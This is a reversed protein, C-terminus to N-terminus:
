PQRYARCAVGVPQAHPDDLPLATLAGGWVCGTDIAIVGHSDSYGLASWHGCIVRAGRSRADGFTFWPALPPAVDGPPGKQALDMRGGATCYRLRTLANIVFRHRAAGELAESWTDPQNGYMQAFLAPADHALVAGVEAALRAADIARWQPVLGAHVLLDGRAADFHALPRALLWELLPDRDHAGLVGELTDGQKAQRGSGLAVALLHLDHNGLVTVANAGLDRVFRLVEVSQPGRNVLDGVFWLEDRDASFHLARLLDRLI